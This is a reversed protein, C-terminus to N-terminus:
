QPGRHPSNKNTKGPGAARQSQPQFASANSTPRRQPMSTRILGQHQAQWPSLSPTPLVGPHSPTRWYTQTAKDYLQTRKDMQREKMQLSSSAMQQQCQCRVQRGEYAMQERQHHQQLQQCQVTLLAITKERSRLEERLVQVEKILAEIQSAATNDETQDCVDAPSGTEELQLLTKLMLLQNKLMSCDEAMHQLAPEDLMPRYVPQKGESRVPHSPLRLNKQGDYNNLFHLRSDHFFHDPGSWRHQKRRQGQRSGRDSREMLSM